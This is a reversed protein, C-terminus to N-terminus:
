AALAAALQPDAAAARDLESVIRGSEEAFYAAGSLVQRAVDYSPHRSGCLAILLAAPYRHSGHEVALLGSPDAVRPMVNRRMLGLLMEGFHDSGSASSMTM